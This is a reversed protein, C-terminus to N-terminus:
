SRKQAIWEIFSCRGSSTTASEARCSTINKGGGGAHARSMLAAFVPMAKRSLHACASGGYIGKQTWLHGELLYPM